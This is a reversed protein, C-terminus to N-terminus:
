LGDWGVQRGSVQQFSSLTWLPDVSTSTSPLPLPQPEARGWGRAGRWKPVSVAATAIATMMIKSDSTSTHILSYSCAAKGPCPAMGSAYLTSGGGVRQEKRRKRRSEHAESVWGGLAAADLPTPLPVDSLGCFSWHMQGLWVLCVKQKGYCRSKLGVEKDFAPSAGKLWLQSNTM